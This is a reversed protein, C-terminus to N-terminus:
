QIISQLQEIDSKRYSIGRGTPRVRFVSIKGAYRMKRMTDKSVGLLEAAEKESIWVTTNETKRLSAKLTKVERELSTLKELITEQITM